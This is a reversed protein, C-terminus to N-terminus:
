LIQSRISNSISLLAGSRNQSTIADWLEIWCQMTLSVCISRAIINQFWDIRFGKNAALRLGIIIHWIRNRIVNQDAYRSRFRRHLSAQCCWKWMHCGSILYISHPASCPHKIFPLIEYKFESHHPPCYHNQDAAVNAFTATSKLRRACCKNRCEIKLTYWIAVLRRIPCNQIEFIRHIIHEFLITLITSWGNLMNQYVHCFSSASVIMAIDSM